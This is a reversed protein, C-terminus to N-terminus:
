VHSGPLLLVKGDSRKDKYLALADHIKELPFRGQIQTALTSGLLNQVKSVTRLKSLWSLNKFWPTLWFGRMSKGKFILDQPHIACDGGGLAGYVVIESGRPMAEALSAGFEGGVADFATTAHVQVALQRLNEVFNPQSSDVVITAGEARLAAVQEPRRVIHVALMKKRKALRVLMRGVASAAATQVFAKHGRQKAQDLLSWATLPNVLLTAGRELTVRTKLPICHMASCAMYEAWTGHGEEPARVAVRRGMLWKGYLGARAEVVTGSGEFGPVIPLPKQIGYQNRLFVLDSPNIPAAAMKVLVQGSRLTPKPIEDVRLSTNLHQFSTLLVARM